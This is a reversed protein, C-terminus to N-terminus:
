NNISSENLAAEKKIPLTILFKAGKKYARDIHIAGDFMKLINWVIFLGLGEGGNGMTPDKTSFFPEFVKRHNETPIGPGNDSFAIRVVDHRNGSIVVRITGEKEFAQMSNLVLNYFVQSFQTQNGYLYIDRPGQISYVINQAQLRANLDGFVQSICEKVSFFEEQSRSSVIPGFRALLGGIRSTQELIMKMLSEADQPTDKRRQMKMQHLQVAYRINTIPQGLEHSFGKLLERMAMMQRNHEQESVLEKMRQWVVQESELQEERRADSVSHKKRAEMGQIREYVAQAEDFKNFTLYFNYLTRAIPISRNASREMAKLTRQLRAADNKSEFYYVLEYQINFDASEIFKEDIQLETEAFSYDSTRRCIRLIRCIMARNEYPKQTKQILSLASDLRGSKECYEVLFADIKRSKNHNDANLSDSNLKHQLVAQVGAINHADDWNNIQSVVESYNKDDNVLRLFDILNKDSIVENGLFSILCEAIEEGIEGDEIAAKIKQKYEYDLAESARKKFVRYFRIFTRFRGPHNKLRKLNELYADAAELLEGKQLYIDGLIKFFFNNEPFKAVAEKCKKIAFDLQGESRLKFIENSFANELLYQEQM